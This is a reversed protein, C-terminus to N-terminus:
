AIGQAGHYAYMSAFIHQKSVPLKKQIHSYSNVHVTGAIVLLVFLTIARKGQWTSLHPDYKRSSIETGYKRTRQLVGFGFFAYYLAAAQWARAPLCKCALWAPLLILLAIVVLLNNMANLVKAANGLKDLASALVELASVPVARRPQSSRSNEFWESPFGENAESVEDAAVATRQAATPQFVVHRAKSKVHLLRRRPLVSVFSLHLSVHVSSHVRRTYRQRALSPSRLRM